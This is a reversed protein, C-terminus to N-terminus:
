ACVVLIFGLCTRQRSFTSGYTIYGVILLVGFYLFDLAISADRNKMIQSQTGLYIQGKTGGDKFSYNSVQLVLNIEKNNNMFYSTVPMSNPLESSTNTGVVGNSSLLNGNVWLKYSSLTSPISLGLLANKYKSNLNINLRYTAYGFADYNKNYKNWAMPMNIYAPVYSNTSFDKPTLLQKWYFKWQGSLDTYGDKDFDWTTLKLIGNKSSINSPSNPVTFKNLSFIVYLLAALIIISLIIALPKEKKLM